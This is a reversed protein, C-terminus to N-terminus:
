KIFKICDSIKILADMPNKHNLYDTKEGLFYKDSKLYERIKNKIQELSLQEIYEIKVELKQLIQLMMLNKLFGANEIIKYSLVKFQNGNSDILTLNKYFSEGGKSVIGFDSEEIYYLTKQDKKYCIAPFNIDIINQM